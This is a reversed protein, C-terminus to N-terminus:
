GILKNLVPVKRMVLIVALCVFLVIVTVVPVGIVSNVINGNITLDLYGNQITELVILHFLYIPLTNISILHM